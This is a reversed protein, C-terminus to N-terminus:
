QRTATFQQVTEATPDTIRVTLTDGRVCFVTSETSAQKLFSPAPGVEDTPAGGAGADGLGASPTGGENLVLTSGDTTYAGTEYDEIPAPEEGTVCYGGQEVFDAQLDACQKLQGGTMEAICSVPLKFFGGESTTADRVYTGDANFTITGTQDIGFDIVPKESCEAFAAEFDGFFSGPITM